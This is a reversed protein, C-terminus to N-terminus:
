AISFFINETSKKLTICVKEKLVNKLSIIELGEGCMTSVLAGFHISKHDDFIHSTAMRSDLKRVKQGMRVTTEEVKEDFVPTKAPKRGHLGAEHLRRRITMASIEVGKTQLLDKRIDLFSKFRNEFYCRKIFRDQLFTTKRPKGSGVGRVTSGTDWFKQLFKVVAPKSFGVSVAIDRTTMKIQSLAIIRGKVLVSMQRQNPM